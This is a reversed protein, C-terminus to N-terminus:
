GNVEEHTGGLSSPNRRERFIAETQGCAYCLEGPRGVLPASRERLEPRRLNRTVVWSGAGLSTEALPEGAFASSSWSLSPLDNEGPVTPLDDDCRHDALRVQLLRHAIWCLGTGVGVGLLNEGYDLWEVTRSPVFWQLSETVIGYLLLVALGPWGITKKPWRAVHVLLALITFAAFHIGIDIGPLATAKPLGITRAPNPTLLLVTLLGWYGACILLRIARM